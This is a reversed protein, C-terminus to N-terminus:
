LPINGPESVHMNEAKWSLSRLENTEAPLVLRFNFYFFTGDTQHSCGCFTKWSLYREWDSMQSLQM